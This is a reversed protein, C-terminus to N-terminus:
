SAPMTNPIYWGSGRLSDRSGCLRSGKKLAPLKVRKGTGPHFLSADHLSDHHSREFPVPAPTAQGEDACRDGRAGCRKIGKARDNAVVEVFSKVCDQQKAAQRGVFEGTGVGFLEACPRLWAM